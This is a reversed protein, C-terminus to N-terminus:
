NSQDLDEIEIDCMECVITSLAGRVLEILHLDGNEDAYRIMGYMSLIFKKLEGIANNKENIRNKFDDALDILDKKSM